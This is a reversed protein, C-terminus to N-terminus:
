NSLGKVSSLDIDAFVTRGLLAGTLDADRLECLAFSTGLMNAGRLDAKDFFSSSFSAWQLDADCLNAERFDGALARQGESSRRGGSEDANALSKEAKDLNARRLDAMSLNTAGMLM